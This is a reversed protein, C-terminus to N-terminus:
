RREDDPKLGSPLRPSGLLEGFVQWRADVGATKEVYAAVL